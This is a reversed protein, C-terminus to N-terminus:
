SFGYFGYLGIALSLIIAVAILLVLKKDIKRTLVVTIGWFVLPWYVIAAGVSILSLTTNPRQAFIKLLAPVLAAGIFFLPFLLSFGRTAVVALITIGFVTIWFNPHSIFLALQGSMTGDALDAEPLEISEKRRKRIYDLLTFLSALAIAAFIMMVSMVRGIILATNSDGVFIEVIIPLFISFLLVLGILLKLYHGVPPNEKLSPEIMKYEVGKGQCFDQVEQM